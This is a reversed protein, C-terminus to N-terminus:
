IAFVTLEELFLTQQATIILMSPSIMLYDSLKQEHQLVVTRNHVWRTDTGGNM